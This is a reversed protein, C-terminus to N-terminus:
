SVENTIDVVKPITKLADEATASLQITSDNLKVAYLTNPLKDTTGIGVFSTSAIGIADATGSGGHTYKIEEGTVFFHNPITITNEPVNVINSSSGLFYRQFVPYSKHTLSFQRKIDRSTANYIGFNTELATAGMDFYDLTIITVPFCIPLACTQVGTM